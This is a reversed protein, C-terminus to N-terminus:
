VLVDIQGFRSLGAEVASQISVHDQVDLRTVLLRDLNTLETEKTPSRMTAIVNWGRSQFLRASARGLGSSTGTILITKNMEDMQLRWRALMRHEETLAIQCVSSVVQLHDAAIVTNVGHCCWEQGLGQYLQEREHPNGFGARKGLRRAAGVYRGGGHRLRHAPELFSLSNAQEVAGRM